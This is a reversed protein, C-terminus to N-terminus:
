IERHIKKVKNKTSESVLESNFKPKKPLDINEDNNTDNNNKIEPTIGLELELKKVRELFESKNESIIEKKYEDDILLFNYEQFLKKIELKKLKENM